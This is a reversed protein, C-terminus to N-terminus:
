AKRRLAASAQPVNRAQALLLAMTHEATSLTNSHPANVVMVGQRTAAEVDVNDVGVGARGGAVLGVGAAIVDATVQTSSRVILAHAGRVAELLQEHSLDLREDVEHGARRLRELGARAIKETVLIRAM